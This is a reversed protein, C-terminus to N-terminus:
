TGEAQEETAKHVAKHHLACLWRVDLPKAYDSHHAQSNEAGCIECCLRKLLGGLVAYRVATHAAAKLPNRTRWAHTKAFMRDRNEQSRWYWNKRNRACREKNQLQWMHTKQLMAERNAWYYAKYYVALCSRCVARRGDKFGAHKHFEVLPKLVGCRRCTKEAGEMACTYRDSTGPARCEANATAPTRGHRM